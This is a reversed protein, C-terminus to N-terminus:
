LYGHETLLSDLGVAHGREKIAQKGARTVYHNMTRFDISLSDVYKFFHEPSNFMHKKCSFTYKAEFDKQIINYKRPTNYFALENDYKETSPIDVDAVIFHEDYFIHYIYGYGGFVSQYSGRRGKFYIQPLGGAEFEMYVYGTDRNGLRKYEDTLRYGTCFNIFGLLVFGGILTSVVVISITVIKLLLRFGKKIYNVIM